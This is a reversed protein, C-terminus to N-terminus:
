KNTKYNEYISSLMDNYETAKLDKLGEIFADYNDFSEAGTIFQAAMKYAYVNLDTCYTDIFTQQEDTYYVNPFGPVEYPLINQKYPTLWDNAVKSKRDPHLVALGRYEDSGLFGVSGMAFNNVTIWMHWGNEIGSRELMGDANIDTTEPDYEWGNGIIDDESQYEPGNRFYLSVVPDFCADLWRIAVEPNKCDKSISCRNVGIGYDGNTVPTSGEQDVVPVPSYLIENEYNNAKHADVIQIPVPAYSNPYTCLAIQGNSGKAIYDAETQTFTDNDLLKESYLKNLYILTEKYQETLPAYCATDSRTDIYINGGGVLGYANLIYQLINDWAPVTDPTSYYSWPVEDAISNGNYDVDRLAVFANYLDELTVITSPDVGAAKCYENIWQARIGSATVYFETMYYGLGYINGDPLISAAKLAPKEEYVININPTLKTDELYENLPIMLGQTMAYEYMESNSFPVFFVDPLDNGALLIAKQEEWAENAILKFNIKVNSKQEMWQWFHQGKEFDVECASDYISVFSLEFPEKTVPLNSEMNLLEYKSSEGEAESDEDTSEEEKEKTEPATTSSEESPKQAAPACAAFISVIILVVLLIALLKKGKM